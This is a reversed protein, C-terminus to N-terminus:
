RMIGWPLNALSLWKQQAICRVLIFCDLVSQTPLLMRSSVLVVTDLFHM